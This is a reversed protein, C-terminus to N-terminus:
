ATPNRLTASARAPVRRRLVRWPRMAWALLIVASPLTAGVADAPDPAAAALAIGVGAAWAACAALRPGGPRARLVLPVCMAAAVLAGAQVLAEPQDALPDWLAGAAADPSAGDELGGVASPLAAGGALLGDTGAATQWALATVM